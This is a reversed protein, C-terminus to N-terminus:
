SGICLVLVMRYAYIAAIVDEFVVSVVGNPILVALVTGTQLFSCPTCCFGYAISMALPEDIKYKKATQYRFWIAKVRPLLAMCPTPPLLPTRNFVWSCRPQVVPMSPKLGFL